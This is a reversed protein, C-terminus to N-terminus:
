IIHEEAYYDEILKKVEKHVPSSDEKIIFAIKEECLKIIANMNFMVNNKAVHTNVIGWMMEFPNLDPHYSPLRLVSDM